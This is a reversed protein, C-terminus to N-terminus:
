RPHIGALSLRLGTLGARAGVNLRRLRFRDSRKLQNVGPNMTFAVEVNAEALLRAVDDNYRGAPYAFAPTVSGVERELDRMSEEIEVRADELPIQDMMPHRCTHSALTVGEKALERLADWGLVAPTARGSGLRDSIGAVLEMAVDHPLAKVDERLKRYARVRDRYSSWQLRGYPTEVGREPTGAIAQFLRDWWFVREPRDPFATPVFLTVPLGLRKLVPWAHEAFDVYADDFTLMVARPHLPRDHRMLDLLDELAIVRYSSALYEMQLLFDDPTASLSGPSPRPRDRPDAVHHYTLVGLRDPRNARRELVRVLGCREAQGMVRHAVRRLRGNAGQISLHGEVANEISRIWEDNVRERVRHREVWLRGNEGMQRRAEPDAALSQVVTQLRSPDGYPIVFGAGAEKVLDAGEGAGAFVVPKGAAMYELLKSPFATEAEPRLPVLLIDASAIADLYAPYTVQGHVTANEVGRCQEELASRDVGDGYLHLAATDRPLSRMAEVAFGVGQLYGLLGAYVLRVPGSPRPAESRHALEDLVSQPVGNPVVHVKFPSVGQALLYDRQASSTTSIGQAARFASLALGRFVRAGARKAASGGLVRAYEWTLDRLDLWLPRDFARAATANFVFPVSAIVGDVDALRGRARSALWAFRAEFAIRRAIDDKSAVKPVFRVVMIGHRDIEVGTTRSREDSAFVAPDPYNPWQTLVTVRHGASSLSTALDTARKAGPSSEPEYRSSILALNLM